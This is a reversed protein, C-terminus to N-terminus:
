TISLGGDVVLMTGFVYSADDSALFACASAVEEPRGQRKVPPAGARKDMRGDIEGFERHVMTSDILGLMMTNARIGRRAYRATMHRGIAPLAAKSTEYAIGTGGLLGALSSIFVFVGHGQALMAPLAAQATLVHSRLNVDLEFDFGEVTEAHLGRGSAIGVNCVVVDLGGLASEAQAVAARCADPDSADASIAVHPGAAAGSCADATERASAVRLDSIALRAGESALRLCIARGNGMALTEGARPPGDAGGGVVLVRRGEFRNMANGKMM